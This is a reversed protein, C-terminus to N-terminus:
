FVMYIFPAVYQVSQLFVLVLGVLVFVSVMPVMWWRGGRVLMAMLEGITGFRMLTRELRGADHRGVDAAQSTFTPAEETNATQSMGPTYGLFGGLRV